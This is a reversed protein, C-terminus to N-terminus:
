RPIEYDYGLLDFDSKYLKYVHNQITPTYFKRWDGYVNNNCNIKLELEKGFLRLHDVELNEYRGINDKQLVLENNDDLLWESQLFLPELQSNYIDWHTHNYNLSLAFEEFTPYLQTLCYYIPNNNFGGHKMFHYASVLRSYPNRVITILKNKYESPYYKGWYHGLNNYWLNNNTIISMGANKPIHMFIYPANDFIKKPLVMNHNYPKYLKWCRVFTENHILNKNDEIDAYNKIFFYLKMSLPPGIQPIFLINDGVIIYNKM